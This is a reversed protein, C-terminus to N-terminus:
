LLSSGCFVEVCTATRQGLADEVALERSGLVSKQNKKSDTAEAIRGSRGPDQM